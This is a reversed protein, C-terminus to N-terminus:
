EAVGDPSHGARRELSGERSDVFAGSVRKEGRHLIGQRAGYHTHEIQQHFAPQHNDRLRNQRNFHLEDCSGTRRKGIYTGHGGMWHGQRLALTKEGSMWLPLAGGGFVGSAAHAFGQRASVFGARCYRPSAGGLVIVTHVHQAARLDSSCVDSSWDGQLRTHRRRSSFFFFSNAYRRTTTIRSSNRSACRVKM